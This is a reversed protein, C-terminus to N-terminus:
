SVAELWREIVQAFRRAPRDILSELARPNGEFGHREYHRFMAVLTEVAYGGLGGARAGRAWEERPIVRVGVDRRLRRALATAVERPDLSEPGCLEYIASDHGEGTLVTAAAEAVDRLDVMAVRTSTAYPVEYVAKSTVAGWQARVNQMYAAPQLITFALGSEILAEEVRLKKWHHPMKEIQPHLVSHYVLREVGVRRCVDIARRGIEVEDPRMNPCILYVISSGALAAELSSADTLDGPVVEAAGLAKMEEVVKAMKPRHVVARTRASRAALARVIARGTKGAAGTITVLRSV